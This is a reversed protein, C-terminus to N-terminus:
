AALRAGKEQAQMWDAVARLEGTTGDGKLKNARWSIVAINGPVYGLAPIIKDLTPSADHFGGMAGRSATEKSAHELKIGLVPCLEPIQIDEHTISFPV